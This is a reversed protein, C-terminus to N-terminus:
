LLVASGPIRGLLNEGVPVGGTQQVLRREVDAQPDNLQLNLVRRVNRGGVYVM